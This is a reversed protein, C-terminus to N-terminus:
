LKPTETPRVSEPTSPPPPGNAKDEEEDLVIPNEVLGEMSLDDFTTPSFPTDIGPRFVADMDLQSNQWNLEIDELNSVQNSSTDLIQTGVSSLVEDRLEMTGEQNQTIPMRSLHNDLFDQRQSLLLQWAAPHIEQSSATINQVLDIVAITVSDPAFDLIWQIRDNFVSFITIKQLNFTLQNFNLPQSYISFSFFLNQFNIIDSLDDAM